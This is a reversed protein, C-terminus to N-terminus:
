RAALALERHEFIYMGLLLLLGGRVIGVLGVAELILPWPVEKGSSVRGSAGYRDLPPLIVRIADSIGKVAVEAIHTFATRQAPSDAFTFGQEFDAQITGALTILLLLSLAIIPSVPFTLFTSCFLGLIALFLIETFILVLGRGLNAVFSTAPVLVQIAEDGTFILTPLSPEVNLFRVELEGDGSVADAPIQIEHFEDPKRSSRYTYFMGTNPRGVRWITFVPSDSMRDSSSYKFRVTIQADKGRPRPVNRFRWVRVVRPPIANYFNLREERLREKFQAEDTGAPVRGAEVLRLYQEDVQEQIREQPIPEPEVARRATLIQQRALAQEQATWREQRALYEVCVVTVVAMFLLLAANVVLIGVLKGLVIHWRRVPRSELLYIQKEHIESWLTTTSLILTLLGLLVGALILTYRIVLRLLGALTGDGELVFPLLPALVLYIAMILFAVRVRVAQRVTNRAIAWVLRRDAALRGFPRGIMRMLDPSGNSM